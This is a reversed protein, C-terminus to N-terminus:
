SITFEKVKDGVIEDLEKKEEPTLRFIDKIKEMESSVDSDAKDNSSSDIQGSLTSNEPKLIGNDDIRFINDFSRSIYHESDSNFSNIKFFSLITKNQERKRRLLVSLFRSCPKRGVELTLEELSDLVIFSDRGTILRELKIMTNTLNRSIGLSMVNKDVSEIILDSSESWYMHVIAGDFFDYHYLILDKICEPIEVKEKYLFLSSKGEIEKLIDESRQIKKGDNM